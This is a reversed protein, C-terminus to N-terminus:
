PEQQLIGLRAAEERLVRVFDSTAAPLTIRRPRVLASERFLPPLDSVPVRVVQGAALADVILTQTLFAAGIGHLVMQRATDIPVEIPTGPLQALRTMLGSASPGWRVHLLPGGGQAAEALTVSARRALPHRAPAVLVLPERFRLLPLLDASFVPWAILGLKVVGDELMQVLQHTHGSRIFLEVEPHTQFFHEVAAALFGGTLSEITGVTVRGRQGQQALRAAESGEALVALARRAYPLFSEGLATLAVSRGGRTFLAGGVEEELAQIRASVTPQSLELTQAARSFTGERVIRDFAELQGTDM